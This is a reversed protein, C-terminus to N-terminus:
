WFIFRDKALFFDLNPRFIQFFDKFFGSFHIPTCAQILAHMTSTQDFNFWVSIQTVLSCVISLPWIVFSRYVLVKNYRQFHKKTRFTMEKQDRLDLFLKRLWENKAREGIFIHNRKPSSKTTWRSYPSFPALWVSSMCIWGFYVTRPMFYTHVSRIKSLRSNM